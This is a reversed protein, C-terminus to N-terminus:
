QRKGLVRVAVVIMIVLGIGQLGPSDDMEGLVIALAGLVVLSGSVVWGVRRM